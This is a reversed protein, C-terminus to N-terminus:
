KANPKEFFTAPIEKNVSITEIAISQLAKGKLTVEAQFPLLLGDVERFDSYNETIEGLRGDLARGHYSLSVVRGSKEEIGLTVVLGNFDVAVREVNVEGVKEGGLAAAKFGAGRRAGLVALPRRDFEQMFTKKQEPPASNTRAGFIVFIEAPTAVLSFTGNPSVNDRRLYGSTLQTWITRREVDGQPSKFKITRTEQYSKIADVRKAGGAAAVAREILAAGKQLVEASAGRTAPAAVESELYDDPSAVFNKKCEESGFIYIRNKYVAYLDPNGRTPAGMRACHADLQIGYRQPDSEFTAKNAESAFYYRLRGSTVTIKMEGQTEKGQALLVPDLGELADIIQNPIQNPAQAHVGLVSVFALLIAGGSIKGLVKRLM